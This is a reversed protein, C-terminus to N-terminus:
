RSIDSAFLTVSDLTCVQYKGMGIEQIAHNLLRAKAQYVPDVSGDEYLDREAGLRPYVDAHTLQKEGKDKISDLSKHAADDSM